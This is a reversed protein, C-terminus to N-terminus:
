YDNNKGLHETGGGNGPCQFISAGAVKKTAKNDLKLAKESLNVLKKKNLKLKM